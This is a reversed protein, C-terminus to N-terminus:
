AASAVHAIENEDAHRELCKVKELGRDRGSKMEPRTSVGGKTLDHGGTVGDEPDDSGVAGATEPGGLGLGQRHWSGGIRARPRRGLPSTCAAIGGECLCTLWVRVSLVGGEPCPELREERRRATGDIEVDGHITSALLASCRRDRRLLPQLDGSEKWRAQWSLCEEAERECASRDEAM